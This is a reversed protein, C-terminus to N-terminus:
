WGAYELRLYGILQWFLGVIFFLFAAATLARFAPPQPEGRSWEGARMWWVGAALAFVAGLVTLIYGALVNSVFAPSYAMSM